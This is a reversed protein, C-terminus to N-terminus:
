REVLSPDAYGLLAERDARLAFGARITADTDRTYARRYEARSDYRAEIQEPSMPVTSGLLLCIISSTPGPKDSLVVVPVDVPPTRVGGRAIGASGRVIAGDDNVALRRARPPVQGDRVWEDLRRMAAKAVVHMPGDNVAAGCDLTEATEGLLHRDAHATGAVEWLRYSRSDPQRAGLSNLVGAVDSESQLVLVPTRNDTRITAPTSGIASTIDASEGPEVLPLPGAGRSHVLFGDFAGTRPQVGNVYTVLAFASQSQGAAVVRRARLPGLVGGRRSRRLARAVQTYIDFSFGDGPHTLSGYREPDLGVLGRGALGEGAAVRVLVDGGMVGIRQASVGVWAYGRRVLEEELNSFEPNADVGGSVNLWEVVVTGNFDAPRKPRRVIVRTRYPAETDEVFTWRGDETLPGDARYATATGAAVREQETYGADDADFPGTAQGLFVGQGGTLLESVDAAPGSRREVARPREPRRVEHGSWGASLPRRPESAAPADPALAVPVALAVVAVLALPLRVRRVM